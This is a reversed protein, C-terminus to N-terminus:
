GEERLRIPGYKAADFPKPDKAAYFARIQDMDKRVDGTMAIPQGIGARRRGYDLYCPAVPVDAGRAIHYFGSKWHDARGRTGEPPVFLVFEDNSRFQEVMQEVMNTKRSRDIPVAGLARLLVGQAGKLASEKIMWRMRLNITQALLILLLGDWNSTHPVALAVYKKESPVAGEFRWGVMKLAAQSIVSKEVRDITIV